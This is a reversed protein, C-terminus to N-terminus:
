LKGKDEDKVQLSAAIRWYFGSCKSCFVGGQYGELVGGTLRMM